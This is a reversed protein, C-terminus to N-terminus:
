QQSDRAAPPPVSVQGRSVFPTPARTELELPTEGEEAERTENAALVHLPIETALNRNLESSLRTEQGARHRSHPLPNHTAAARIFHNRRTRM